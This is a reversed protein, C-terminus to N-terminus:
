QFIVFCIEFEHEPNIDIFLFELIGILALVFFYWTFYGRGTSLLKELSSRKPKCNHYDSFLNEFGLKKEIKLVTEFADDFNKSENKFSLFAIITVVVALTPFIKIWIPHLNSDQLLPAAALLIYLAWSFHKIIDWIKNGHNELRNRELELLSLLKEDKNSDRSFRDTGEIESGCNPCYEVM